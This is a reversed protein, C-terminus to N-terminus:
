NLRGLYIYMNYYKFYSSLILIHCLMCLGSIIFMCNTLCFNGSVCTFLIKITKFLVNWCFDLESKIPLFLIWIWDNLLLRFLNKQCSRIKVFPKIKSTCFDLNRWVIVLFAPNVFLFINPLFITILSILLMKSKKKKWFNISGKYFVDTWDCM